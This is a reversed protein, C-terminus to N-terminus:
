DVEYMAGPPPEFTPIWSHRDSSYPCMTQQFREPSLGTSPPPGHVMAAIIPRVGLSPLALIQNLIGHTSRRAFRHWAGQIARAARVHRRCLLAFKRHVTLFPFAGQTHDFIAHNHASLWTRTTRDQDHPDTHM